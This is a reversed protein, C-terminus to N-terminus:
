VVQRYTTTAMTFYCFFELIRQVIRSGSKFVTGVSSHTSGFSLNKIVFNEGFCTVTTMGGTTVAMYLNRTIPPMFIPRM